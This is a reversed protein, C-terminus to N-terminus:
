IINLRHITKNLIYYKGNKKCAVRGLSSDAYNTYGSNSLCKWKEESSDKIEIEEGAEKNYGQVQM